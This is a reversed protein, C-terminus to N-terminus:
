SHQTVLLKCFNLTWFFDFWGGTTVEKRAVKRVLCCRHSTEWTTEGNEGHMIKEDVHMRIEEFSTKEYFQKGKRLVQM